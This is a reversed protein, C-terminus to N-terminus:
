EHLYTMLRAQLNVSAQTATIEGDFFRQVEERLFDLIFPDSTPRLSAQAVLAEFATFNAELDVGAASFGEAEMVAIFRDANYRAAARNVPTSWIEPSTQMAESLMFAVFEAALAQNASNANVAVHARASVLGQGRDNVMLGFREVNDVLGEVIHFANHFITEAVIAPTGWNAMQLREGMPAITELMAVFQDTDVSASREALNVFDDFHLSFFREALMAESMGMPTHIIDRASDIRALEALGALTLASVDAIGVGDGITFADLGFSLPVVYRAGNYVYADLVNQYFVRPAFSLHQNLDVLMGADALREWALLGNVMIIDEGGGGMLSTNIIQGYSARDGTPVFRISLGEHLAEFQEAASMIFANEFMGAITLETPGTLLSGNTIQENAMSANPTAGCGTVAMAVCAVSMPKIMRKFSM